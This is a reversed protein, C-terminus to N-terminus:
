QGRPLYSQVRTGVHLSYITSRRLFKYSVTQSEGGGGKLKEKRLPRVKYIVKEYSCVNASQIIQGWM